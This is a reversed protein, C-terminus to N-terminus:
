ETDAVLGMSEKLKQDIDDQTIEKQTPKLKLLYTTVTERDEDNKVAWQSNYNNWDMIGELFQTEISEIIATERENWDKEVGLETAMQKKACVERVESVDKFSPIISAKSNKVVVDWDKSFSTWNYETQNLLSILFEKIGDTRPELGKQMRFCANRLEYRSYM